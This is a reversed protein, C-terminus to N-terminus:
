RDWLTRHSFTLLGRRTCVGSQDLDLITEQGYTLPFETDLPNDPQRPGCSLMHIGTLYVDFRGLVYMVLPPQGPGRPYITPLRDSNAQTPRLDALCCTPHFGESSALASSGAVALATAALAASRPFRPM